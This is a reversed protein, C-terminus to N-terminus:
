EESNCTGGKYTCAAIFSHITINLREATYNGIRHGIRMRVDAHLDMFKKLFISAQEFDVNVPPPSPPPASGGPGQGPGVQRKRRGSSAPCMKAPPNPPALGQKGQVKYNCVQTKRTTNCELAKIANDMLAQDYLNPLVSKESLVVWLYCERDIKGGKCSIDRKINLYTFTTNTLDIGNDPLYSEVFDCIQNNCGSLNILENLANATKNVRDIETANKVSATTLNDLM